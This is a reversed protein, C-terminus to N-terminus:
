SSSSSSPTASALIWAIPIVGAISSDAAHTAPPERPPDEIRAGGALRDHAAPEEEADTQRDQLHAPSAAGSTDRLAQPYQLQRSSPCTFYGASSGTHINRVVVCHADVRAIDSNLLMTMSRNYLRNSSPASVEARRTASARCISPLRAEPCPERNDVLRRTGQVIRNTVTDRGSDDVSIMMAVTGPAHGISYEWREGM